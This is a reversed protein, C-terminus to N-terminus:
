YPYFNMKAGTKKSKQARKENYLMCARTEYFLGQVTSENPSRM